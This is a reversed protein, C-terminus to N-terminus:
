SHYRVTLIVVVSATEDVRYVLSAPLDYIIRDSGSRSEGASTPALSLEAEIADVAGNFEDGRGDTRARLYAEALDEQAPDTWIIAYSV